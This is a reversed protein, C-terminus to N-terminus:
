DLDLVTGTPQYKKRLMPKFLRFSRCIRCYIAFTLITTELSGCDICITVDDVAFKKNNEPVLHAFKLQPSNM